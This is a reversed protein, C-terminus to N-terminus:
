HKNKEFASFSYGGVKLRSQKPAFLPETKEKLSSEMEMNTDAYIRLLFVPGGGKEAPAM